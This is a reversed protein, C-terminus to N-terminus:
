KKHLIWCRKECDSRSDSDFRSDSRETPPPLPCTAVCDDYEKRQASSMTGGCTALLSSWGLALLVTLAWRKATVGIGAHPRGAVPRAPQWPDSSQWRCRTGDDGGVLNHLAPDMPNRDDCATPTPGPEPANNVDLLVRGDLRRHVAPRLDRRSDM